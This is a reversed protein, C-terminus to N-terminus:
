SQPMTKDDTYKMKFPDTMPSNSVSSILHSFFITKKCQQVLLVDIASYKGLDEKHKIFESSTSGDILIFWFSCPWYQAM